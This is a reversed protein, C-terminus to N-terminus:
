RCVTNWNKEYIVGNRRVEYVSVLIVHLKLNNIKNCDPTEKVSNKGEAEAEKELSKNTVRKM